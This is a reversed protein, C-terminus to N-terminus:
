AYREPIGLRQMNERTPRAARRENAISYTCATKPKRLVARSDGLIERKINAQALRQVHSPEIAVDQRRRFDDHVAQEADM